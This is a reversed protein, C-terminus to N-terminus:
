IVRQGTQVQIDTIDSIDQTHWVRQRQHKESGLVRILNDPVNDECLIGVVNWSLLPRQPLHAQPHIQVQGVAALQPLREYMGSFIFRLIQDLCMNAM